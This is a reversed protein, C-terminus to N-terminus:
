SLLPSTLLPFKLNRIKTKNTRKEGAFINILAAVITRGKLCCHYSRRQGCTPSRRNHLNKGKLCFYSPSNFSRGHHINRHELTNKPKLIKRKKEAYNRIIRKQILQNLWLLSWKEVTLASFIGNSFFILPRQAVCFSFIRFFLGKTCVCFLLVSPIIGNTSVCIGNRFFKEPLHHLLPREASFSSHKHLNHLM